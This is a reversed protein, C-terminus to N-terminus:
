CERKASEDRLLDELTLSDLYDNILKDLHIWVPLTRCSGSNPCNGGNESVCSVPSLTGEALRLLDGVIYESPDKTLRYGGGKGRVGIIYHSHVFPKLISELYKESINQRLAIEKLPLYGDSQHTALDLMVHLAYRGRTSIIMPM